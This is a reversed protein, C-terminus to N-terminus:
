GRSNEVSPNTMTTHQSEKSSWVQPQSPLAQIIQADVIVYYQSTSITVFHVEQVILTILVVNLCRKFTLVRILYQFWTKTNQRELSYFV